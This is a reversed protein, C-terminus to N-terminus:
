EKTKANRFAQTMEHGKIAPGALAKITLSGLMILLATALSDLLWAVPMTIVDLYAPMDRLSELTYEGTLGHLLLAVWFGFCYPCRWSDYLYRLPKPLREVLWNFWNGWDPLKEWILIHLSLGVVVLTLNM